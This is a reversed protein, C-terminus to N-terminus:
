QRLRELVKEALVKKAETPIAEHWVPPPEYWASLIFVCLKAKRVHLADGSWWSEDWPGPVPQSKAPAPDLGSCNGVMWGVQRRPLRETPYLCAPVGQIKGAEPEGLPEGVAAEVEAKTLVKCPDFEKPSGGCASSFLAGFIVLPLVLLGSRRYAINCQASQGKTLIRM